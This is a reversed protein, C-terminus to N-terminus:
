VFSHNLVAIILIWRVGVLPITCCHLNTFRENVFRTDTCDSFTTSSLFFTGCAASGRTDIVGGSHINASCIRCPHCDGGSATFRFVEVIVILYRYIIGGNTVTGIPADISSTGTGGHRRQKEHSNGCRNHYQCPTTPYSKRSYLGLEEKTARTTRDQSTRVTSPMPRGVPYRRCFLLLLYM